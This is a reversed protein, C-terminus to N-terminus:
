PAPKLGPVPFSALLIFSSFHLLYSELSYLESFKNYALDPTWFM